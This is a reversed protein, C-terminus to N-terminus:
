FSKDNSSKKKIPVAWAYKSIIDIYTLIYEYHSNQYKFTRMDILDVQWIQDIGGSMWKTRLFKNRAPTHLTYTPLTYM